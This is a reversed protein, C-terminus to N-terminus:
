VVVASLGIDTVVIWYTGGYKDGVIEDEIFTNVSCIALRGFVYNCLWRMGGEYISLMM